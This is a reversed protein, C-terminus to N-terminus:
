QATCPETTKSPSRCPLPCAALGGRHPGTGMWVRLVGPPTLLHAFSSFPLNNGWASEAEWHCPPVAVVRGPKSAAARTLRCHSECTSGRYPSELMAWGGLTVNGPCCCECFGLASPSCPVAEGGRGSVPAAWVCKWLTLLTLPTSCGAGSCSHLVPSFRFKGTLTM